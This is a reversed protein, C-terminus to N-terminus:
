TLLKERYVIKTEALLLSVQRITAPFDFLYIMRRMMLTLMM